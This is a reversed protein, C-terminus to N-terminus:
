RPSEHFGGAAGGQNFAEYGWSGSEPGAIADALEKRVGTLSQPTMSSGSTTPSSGKGNRTQWEEFTERPETEPIESGKQLIQLRENWNTEDRADRQAQVKKARNNEFAM